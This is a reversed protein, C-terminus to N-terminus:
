PQPPAVPQASKQPEIQRLDDYAMEAVTLDGFIVRYQGNDLKWRMLVADTDAPTVTEGFYAVDKKDQMLKMHFMALATIPVFKQQSQQAAINNGEKEAAKMEEAFAKATETQPNELLEKMKKMLSPVLSAMDIKEPYEGFYENYLRLGEIATEETMEPMKFSGMEKYDDPIVYEFDAATVPADWQFGEIVQTMEMGSIKTRIECKVPMWTEVDVWLTAEVEDAVGMMYAPDITHFGQAKRGDIEVPDLEDYQSNLMQKIMERPDNNQKKSQELLDDTFEIQQYTKQEPMISVMVKEEPLLYALQTMKQTKGDPTTVTMHNEMKMGYQQSITVTMDANMPGSPEKVGMMKEMGSMTMSMKYMFAQSQLVKSYVDALAVSGPGKPFLFVTSLAVLIIAAAATKTFPKMKLIREMFPITKPQQEIQELTQRALDESPGHPVAGNAMAEVAKELIHKNETM